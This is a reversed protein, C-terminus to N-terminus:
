FYEKLFTPLSEVPLFITEIYMNEMVFNHNKPKLRAFNRNSLGRM